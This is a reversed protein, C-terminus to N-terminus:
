RPTISALKELNKRAQAALRVERADKVSEWVKDTYLYVAREDSIHWNLLVVNEGTNCFFRNTAMMSHLESQEPRRDNFSEVPLSCLPVGLEKQWKTIFSALSTAARDDEASTPYVDWRLDAQHITWGEPIEEPFFARWAVNHEAWLQKKVQDEQSLSL